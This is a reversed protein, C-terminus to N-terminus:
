HRLVGPVKMQQQNRMALFTGENSLRSSLQTLTAKGATIVM